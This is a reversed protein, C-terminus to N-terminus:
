NDDDEPFLKKWLREQSIGCNDKQSGGESGDQHDEAEKQTLAVM